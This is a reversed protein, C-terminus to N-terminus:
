MLTNMPFILISFAQMADNALIKVIRQFNHLCQRCSMLFVLIWECSIEILDRKTFGDIQLRTFRNLFSKPLGKRGGGQNVPNQAGFLRFGTAAKVSIGLEPIYLEGRHDLLANLGELISQEALNLEDLLVWDGRRMCSLLPGDLRLWVYVFSNLIVIIRQTIPFPRM